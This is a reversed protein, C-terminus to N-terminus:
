IRPNHPFHWDWLLRVAAQCKNFAEADAPRWCVELVAEVNRWFVKWSVVVPSRLGGGGVYMLCVKLIAGFSRGCQFLWLQLM